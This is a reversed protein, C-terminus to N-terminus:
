QVTRKQLRPPPPPRLSPPRVMVAVVELKSGRINALTESALAGAESSEGTRAVIRELIEEVRDSGIKELGAAAVERHPKNGNVLAHLLANEVNRTILKLSHADFLSGIEGPQAGFTAMQRLAIAAETESARGSYVTDVASFICEVYMRQPTTPDPYVTELLFERDARADEAETRIRIPRISEGAVDKVQQGFGNKVIAVLEAKIDSGEANRLAEIVFIVNQEMDGVPAGKEKAAKIAEENAHIASILCRKAMALYWPKDVDKSQVEGSNIRVVMAGVGIIALHAHSHAPYAALMFLKEHYDRGEPNQSIDNLKIGLGVLRATNGNKSALSEIVAKWASNLETQSLGKSAAAASVTDFSANDGQALKDFTEQTIMDM